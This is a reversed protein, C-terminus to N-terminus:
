LEADASFGFGNVPIENPTFAVTFGFKSKEVVNAHVGEPLGQFQLSPPIRMPVAFLVRFTNNDLHLILPRGPHNDRVEVPVLHSKIVNLVEEALQYREEPNRSGRFQEWKDTAAKMVGYQALVAALVEDKAGAAALTNEYRNLTAITSSVDPLQSLAQVTNKEIRNLQADSAARSKLSEYGGISLVIGTIIPLLVTVFFAIPYNQVLEM